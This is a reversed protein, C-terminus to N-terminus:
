PPRLKLAAMLPLLQSFTVIEDCQGPSLATFICPFHLIQLPAFRLAPKLGCLQRPFASQLGREM